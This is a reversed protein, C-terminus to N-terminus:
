YRLLAAVGDEQSLADSADAFEVDASTLEAQRVLENILDITFVDTSGCKPCADSTGPVLHECARCRTGQVTSDRSVLLTDVRGQGLAELVDDAGFAALGEGFAEEAIEDWLAREEEREAVFWAAWAEEILAENDGGVNIGDRRFTRDRLRPPISSEIQQLSEASGVLVIRDITHDRDLADLREVVETAYRELQKERRRAYRKQSWGGKKVANKVDGRVRAAATSRSLTVLHITTARNNAAIVALTGYEDQLEALPRLYPAAGARLLNPVAIPLRWGQVFDLAGCAFVAVTDDGRAHDDLWRELLTLSAEFHDLEDPKAALLRRVRTIRNKLSQRGAEGSLYCSLFARESAELEALPRLDIEALPTVRSDPM